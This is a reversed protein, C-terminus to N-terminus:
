QAAQAQQGPLAEPHIVALTRNRGETKVSEIRAWGLDVLLEVGSKVIAPKDLGPWKRRYVDRAAFPSQLNGSKVKALIEKAARVEPSVCSAYVRRAHAELFTAWEIARLISPEEVPGCENDVLHFILALSPVLSRFKALHAEIATHEDGQRLRKELKTRWKNFVEQAANDFRVFPLSEFETKAGLSEPTAKDLREFVEFLADLAIRDPKRDVNKWDRVPEPYVIVQFRQILGDDGDDGNLAGSLYTQLPGPQITGFLSVCASKIYLTGREVRDYSYGGSGTWSELYFARDNEHGVKDLSRLFGVLEDRFLMVGRENEALIMGLKEITTDNLLLRKRKELEQLQENYVEFDGAFEERIDGQGESGKKIAKMMAADLAALQAKV